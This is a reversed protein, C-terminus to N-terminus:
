PDPRVNFGLLQLNLNQGCVDLTKLGSGRGQGLKLWQKETNKHIQILIVVEGLCMCRMACLVQGPCAASCGRCGHHCGPGCARNLPKDGWLLPLCKRVPCQGSPLRGFLFDSNRYTCSSVNGQQDQGDACHLRWPDFTSVYIALEM